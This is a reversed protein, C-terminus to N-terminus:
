CAPGSAGRSRDGREGLRFRRRERALVLRGPLEIERGPVASRLFEVVRLLHINSVDRAHGALHLAKRALRRALAEPLDVWGGAEIWIAGEDVHFRERAAEDVLTEMWEADRRQAEATRALARLLAPNFERALGPLWRTRLRSRAYRPSANSPDERWALGRSRAHAEIEVRSTDLLPRVIRGDPSREPIGALGDGAAGRLLRLLVTEAQDDATHATAVVDCGLRRAQAELADYRLRRCAEQWSPRERSSAGERLRAPTVASVEFPLGLAEARDRVLAEDADSAEGRLGHNVHGVALELDLRGSLCALGDLLVTSDVGGSVAVLVSRGPLGLRRAAAELTRLM